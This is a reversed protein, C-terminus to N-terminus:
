GTYVQAVSELRGWLNLTLNPANAAGGFWCSIALLGVLRLTPSKAKVVCGLSRMPTEGDRSLNSESSGLQGRDPWKLQGLSRGRNAIFWTADRVNLLLDALEPPGYKRAVALMSKRISNAYEIQRFSGELRDPCSRPVILPRLGEPIIIVPM